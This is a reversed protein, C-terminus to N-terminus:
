AVMGVGLLHNICSLPSDLPKTRNQFTKEVACDASKQFLQTPVLGPKNDMGKTAAEVGACMCYTTEVQLLNQAVHWGRRTTQNSGCVFQV